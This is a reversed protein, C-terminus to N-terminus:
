SDPLKSPSVEEDFPLMSEKELEESSVRSITWRKLPYRYLHRGSEILFKERLSSGAEIWFWHM